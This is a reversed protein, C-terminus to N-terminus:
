ESGEDSTGVLPVVDISVSGQLSSGGRRLSCISCLGSVTRRIVSNLSEEKVDRGRCVKVVSSADQACGM